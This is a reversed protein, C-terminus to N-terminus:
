GSASGTTHESIVASAAPQATKPYRCAWSCFRPAKVSKSYSPMRYFLGGCRECILRLTTARPFYKGTREIISHESPTLLMLNEDRNDDKIGNIHHVVEDTTLYRGLRKEVVLRHELVYGAKSANPHDPIKIKVYGDADYVRGGKWRGNKEMPHRTKAIHEPTPHKGRTQHGMIYRKPGQSAIVSPPFPKHTVLEGCGCACPETILPLTNARWNKTIGLQRAKGTISALPRGLSEAATYKPLTGSTYETYIRRLTQLEDDTWLKYTVNRM